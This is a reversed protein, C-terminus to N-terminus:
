EQRSQCQDADHYSGGNEDQTSSDKIGTNTGRVFRQWRARPLGIITGYVRLIFIRSLQKCKIQYNHMKVKLYKEKESMIKM